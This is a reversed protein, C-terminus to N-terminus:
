WNLHKALEPRAAIADVIQKSTGQKGPLRQLGLIALACATYKSSSSSGKLKKVASASASGPAPRDQSAETCNPDAQDAPAVSGLKDAATNAATITDPSQFPSRLPQPISALGAVAANYTGNRYDTSRYDRSTVQLFKAIM